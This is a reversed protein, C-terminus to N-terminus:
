RFAVRVGGLASTHGSAADRVDAVVVRVQVFPQVRGEGNLSVDALGQVGARASTFASTSAACTTANPAVCGELRRNVVRRYLYLGPGGGARVVVRRGTRFLWSVGLGTVRENTERTLRDIHGIAGDPGQLTIDETVTTDRHLWGGVGVEFALRRSVGFDATGLWGSALYDRDGHWPDALGAAAGLTM